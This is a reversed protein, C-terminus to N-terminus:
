SETQERSTPFKKNTQFISNLYLLLSLSLLTVLPFFPIIEIPFNKTLLQQFEVNM